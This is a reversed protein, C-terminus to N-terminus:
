QWHHLLCDSSTYPASSAVVHSGTCLLSTQSGCWTGPAQIQITFVVLNGPWHNHAHMSRVSFKARKTYLVAFTIAEGAATDAASAAPAPQQPAAQRSYQQAGAAAAPAQFLKPKKFAPMQVPMPVHNEKEPDKESDQHDPQAPNAAVTVSAAAQSNTGAAGPGKFPVSLNTRRKFM